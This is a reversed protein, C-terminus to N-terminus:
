GLEAVFLSMSMRRSAGEMVDGWGKVDVEVGKKQSLDQLDGRLPYMVEDSPNFIVLPAKIETESGTDDPLLTSLLELDRALTRPYKSLDETPAFQENSGGQNKPFLTNPQGAHPERFTDDSDFPTQLSEDSSSKTLIGAKQILCLRVWILTVKM